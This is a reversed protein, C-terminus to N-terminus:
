LFISENHSNNLVFDILASRNLNVENSINVNNLQIKLDKVIKLSNRLYAIGLITNKGQDPCDFPVECEIKLLVYVDKYNIMKSALSATNFHIGNDFDNSKYDYNLKLLMQNKLYNLIYKM